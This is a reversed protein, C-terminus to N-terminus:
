PLEAGRRPKEGDTGSEGGLDAVLECLRSPPHSIIFGAVVLAVSQAASRTWWFYGATILHVVLSAYLAVVLAQRLRSQVGTAYLALGDIFASAFMSAIMLSWFGFGLHFNLGILESAVNAILAAVYPKPVRFRDYVMGKIPVWAVILFGAMLFSQARGDVLWFWVVSGVVALAIALVAGKRIKM